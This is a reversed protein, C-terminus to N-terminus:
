KTNAKHRYGDAGRTLDCGAQIREELCCCVEVLCGKAKGGNYRCWKCDCDAATYGTFKNFVHSISSM